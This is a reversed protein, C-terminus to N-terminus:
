RPPKKALLFGVINTLIKTTSGELKEMASSWLASVGGPPLFDFNYALVAYEIKVLDTACNVHQDILVKNELRINREPLKKEVFSMLKVMAAESDLYDMLRPINNIPYKYMMERGVTAPFKSIIFTGSHKSEYEKPERLEM